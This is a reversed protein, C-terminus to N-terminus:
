GNSLREIRSSLPPHSAFLALLSRHTKPASIMLAAVSEPLPAQEKARELQELKQLAAIMPAKGLLDASGRDARYERFRSYSAVVIAGLIMFLIEFLFTLAYFSASSRRDSDKSNGSLFFALVRALFMVFANVVGQLLTMTVMDGNAIHSIEHGLVGEIETKSMTQLLGTSVAVLSRSKTPGTAFANPSPHDFIGVEPIEPLGAKQTLKVVTQYLFYEEENQTNPSILRINMLSKALIRSLSLSILAGAMGWILCFAALARYDIGKANLYPRIGLLQLLLSITLVIAINLLLFLAIRKFM